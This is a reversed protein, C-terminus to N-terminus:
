IFVVVSDSYLLCFTFTKKLIHNLRLCFFCISVRIYIYVCTCVHGGSACVRVFTCVSLCISICISLCLCVCVYICASPRFSLYRPLLIFMDAVSGAFPWPNAVFCREGIEIRVQRRADSIREVSYDAGFWVEKKTTQGEFKKSIIQLRVVSSLLFFIFGVVYVVNLNGLCVVTCSM